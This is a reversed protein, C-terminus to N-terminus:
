TLRGEEVRLRITRFERKNFDIFLEQIEEHELSKILTGVARAVVDNSKHAKALSKNAHNISAAVAARKAKKRMKERATKKKAKMVIVHKGSHGRGRLPAGALTVARRITDPNRGYKKIMDTQLMGATYDAVMRASEEETVFTREPKSRRTKKPGTDKPRWGKGRMEVGSRKVIALVTSTHRKYKEAIEGTPTGSKYDAIISDREEVTVETRGRENRKM